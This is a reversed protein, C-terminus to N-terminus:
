QPSATHHGDDHLSGESGQPLMALLDVVGELRSSSLRRPVQRIPCPTSPLAQGEIPDGSYFILPPSMDHLQRICRM